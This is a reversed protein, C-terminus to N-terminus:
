ARWNGGDDERDGNPLIVAGGNVHVSGKIVQAIDTSAPDISQFDLLRM